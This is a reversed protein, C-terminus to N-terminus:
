RGKSRAHPQLLGLEENHHIARVTKGSAKALDGVQLLKDGNPLVSLAEEWGADSENGDNAADAHEEAEEAVRAQLERHLHRDDVEWDPLGSRTALALM